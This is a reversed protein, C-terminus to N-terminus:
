AFTYNIVHYSEDYDVEDNVDCVDDNIIMIMMMILLIKKVFRM